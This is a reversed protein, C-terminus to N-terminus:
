SLVNHFLHIKIDLVYIQLRYSVKIIANFVDNNNPEILKGGRNECELVAEGYSLEGPPIKTKDYLDM